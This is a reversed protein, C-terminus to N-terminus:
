SADPKIQGPTTTKIMFFPDERFQKWDKCCYQYLSAIQTKVEDPLQNYGSEKKYMLEELYVIMNYCMTFQGTAILKNLKESLQDKETFWLTTGFGAAEEAIKKICPGIAEYYTGELPSKPAPVYEESSTAGDTAVSPKSWNKTYDDETLEYILNSIRRYKYLVNKYLQNYNLRRIVKLFVDMLLSKLSNIRDLLLPEARHVSIDKVKLQM